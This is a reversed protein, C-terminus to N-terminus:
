ATFEHKMSYWANQWDPLVNRRFPFSQSTDSCIQKEINQFNKRIGKLRFPKSHWIPFVVNQEIALNTQNNTFSLSHLTTADAVSQVNQWYAIGQDSGKRLLKLSQWAKWLMCTHRDWQMCCLWEGIQEGVDSVSEKRHVCNCRCLYIRDGHFKKRILLCLGSLIMWRDDNEWRSTGINMGAYIPSVFFM